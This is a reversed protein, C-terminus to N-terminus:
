CKPVVKYVACAVWQVRSKRWLHLKGVCVVYGAVNLVFCCQSSVSNFFCSRNMLFTAVLPWGVGIRVLVVGLWILAAILESVRVRNALQHAPLFAAERREADDGWWATGERGQSVGFKRTFRYILLWLAWFWFALGSFHPLNRSSYRPRPWSSRGGM